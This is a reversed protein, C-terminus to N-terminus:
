PAPENGSSGEPKSDPVSRLRPRAGDRDLRALEARREALIRDRVYAVVVPDDTRGLLRPGGHPGDPWSILDIEDPQQM